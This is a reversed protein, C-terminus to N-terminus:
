KEQREPPWRIMPTKLEDWVKGLGERAWCAVPLYEQDNSLLIINASTVALWQESDYEYSIPCIGLPMVPWLYVKPRTHVGYMCSLFSAIQVM